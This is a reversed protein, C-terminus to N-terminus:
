NSDNDHKTSNLHHDTEFKLRSKRNSKENEPYNNKNAPTRRFWSKGIKREDQPYRQRNNTATMM